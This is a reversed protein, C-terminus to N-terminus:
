QFCFIKINIKPVRLLYKLSKLSDDTALHRLTIELKTDVPIAVRIKTNNKLM